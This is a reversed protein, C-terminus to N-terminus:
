FTTGPLGLMDCVGMFKGTYSGLKSHFKGVNLETHKNNTGSTSKLFSINGRMMLTLFPTSSTM